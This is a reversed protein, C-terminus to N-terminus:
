WSYSRKRNVVPRNYVPLKFSVKKKAKITETETEFFVEAITKLKKETKETKEEQGMSDNHDVQHAIDSLKLSIATM